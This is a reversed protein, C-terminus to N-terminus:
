PPHSARVSASSTPPTMGASSGTLRGFNRGYYATQLHPQARDIFNQYAAGTTHPRLEAALQEIWALGRQVTQRVGAADMRNAQWFTRRAILQQKIRGARLAPELLDIPEQKPGFYQGLASIKPANAAAPGRTGRGGSASGRRSRM